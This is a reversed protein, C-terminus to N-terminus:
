FHRPKISIKINKLLLVTSSVFNPVMKVLYLNKLVISLLLEQCITPFFFTTEVLFISSYLGFEAKKQQIIM